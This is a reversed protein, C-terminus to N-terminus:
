AAFVGGKFWRERILCTLTTKEDDDLRGAAQSPNGIELIRCIKALVFWPRGDREFIRVPQNEFQFPAVSKTENYLCVEGM